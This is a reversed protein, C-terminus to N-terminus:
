KLFCFFLEACALRIKHFNFFIFWNKKFNVSFYPDGFKRHTTEFIKCAHNLWGMNCCMICSLFYMHTKSWVSMFSRLMNSGFFCSIVLCLPTWLYIKCWDKSHYPCSNPVTCLLKICICYSFELSFLIPSRSYTCVIEMSSNIGWM